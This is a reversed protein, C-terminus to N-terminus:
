DKLLVHVVADDNKETYMELDLNSICICPIFLYISLIKRLAWIKSRIVCM